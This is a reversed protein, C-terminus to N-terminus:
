AAVTESVEPLCTAYTVRGLLPRSCMKAAVTLQDRRAVFGAGVRGATRHGTTLGAQSQGMVFPGRCM